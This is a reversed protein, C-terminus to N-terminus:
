GIITVLDYLREPMKIPKVNEILPPQAVSLKARRLYRSDFKGWCKLKAVHGAKADEIYTVAQLQMDPNHDGEWIIFQKDRSLSVRMTAGSKLKKGILLYKDSDGNDLQFSRLRCSFQYPLGAYTFGAYTYKEGVKLQRVNDFM